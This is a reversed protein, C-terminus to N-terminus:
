AIRRSGLRRVRHLHHGSEYAPRVKVLAAAAVAAAVALTVQGAASFVPSQGTGVRVTAALLAVWGLATVVAATVPGLRPALALSVLTLVLAPLLWGLVVPGYGPLALSAAASLTTTTTLVAACRLLLLRFTHLPAVLALEYTPDVGPGFSVAVGVLPLLPAVALFVLPVVLTRTLHAAGATSALIVTVAVLWSLRLAPTAALLRATHERMGFRRLVSEVPGPIPADIEADLRSWGAQVVGPEVAGALRERCLPCAALHSEVSWLWPPGLARDAYHRLHEDPVHWGTTTM